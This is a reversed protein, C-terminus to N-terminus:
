RPRFISTTTGLTLLKDALDAPLDSSVRVTRQSQEVQISDYLRLLDAENDKTTLRGLGIAGRLADRVRQAGEDSICIIEARLHLGTDVGIGASTASIYGTINSLASQVDSNGALQLFPLGGRTAAWLQDQAPIAELRRRLEDPVGGADDARLDLSTEVMSVPGAAALGNYPFALAQNGSLLLRNGRYELRKAGLSLLKNQVDASKFTGRALVLTQRGNYAALLDSLDRRPDLGIKENLEDLQAFNLRDQHRVYFPATELASARVGALLTTDRPIFSRFASHVAIGTQPAKACSVGGLLGALVFAIRVFQV